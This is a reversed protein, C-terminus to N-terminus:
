PKVTRKLRALAALKAQMRRSIQAMRENQDAHLKQLDKKAAEEAEASEKRADALRQQAQRLEVQMGGVVVKFEELAAERLRRAAEEETLSGLDPMERMLEEEAVANEPAPNVVPEGSVTVGTEAERTFRAIARSLDFEVAGEWEPSFRPLVLRQEGSVLAVGVFGTEGRDRRVPDLGDALAAQRAGTVSRSDFRNVVVNGGGESQYEELLQSVRGAFAELEADVPGGGWISYFRIEVPVDLRRLVAKTAETLGSVPRAVASTEPPRPSESVRWYLLVGGAFLLALAVVLAMRAGARKGRREGCREWSFKEGRKM